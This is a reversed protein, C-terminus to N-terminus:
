TSPRPLTSLKPLPNLLRPPIQKPPTNRRTAQRSLNCCAICTKACGCPPCLPKLFRMEAFFVKGDGFGVLSLIEQGIQKAAQRNQRDQLMNWDQPMCKNTRVVKMCEVHGFARWDLKGCARCRPHCLSQHLLVNALGWLIQFM